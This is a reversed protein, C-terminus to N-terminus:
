RGDHPSGDVTCYPHERVKLGCASCVETDKRGATCEEVRHGEEGCRFCRGPLDGEVYSGAPQQVVWGENTGM